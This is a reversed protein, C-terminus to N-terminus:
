PVSAGARPEDRAPAGGPDGPHHTATTGRHVPTRFILPPRPGPVTLPRRGDVRAPVALRRGAGM